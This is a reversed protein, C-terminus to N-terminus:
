GSMVFHCVKTVPLYSIHPYALTTANKLSSRVEYLGREAVDPNSAIRCIKVASGRLREFTERRGYSSPGYGM